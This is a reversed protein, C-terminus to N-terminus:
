HLYKAKVPLFHSMCKPHFNDLPQPRPLRVAPFGRGCHEWPVLVISCMLPGPVLLPDFIQKETGCCPCSPSLSPHPHGHQGPMACYPVAHGAQGPVGGWPCSLGPISSPWPLSLHASTSELCGHSYPAFISYFFIVAHHNTNRLGHPCTLLWPYHPLDWDGALPSQGASLITQNLAQIPKLLQRWSLPTQQQHCKHNGAEAQRFIHKFLFLLVVSLPINYWTAPTM